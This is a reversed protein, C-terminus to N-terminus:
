ISIKRCRTFKNESSLMKKKALMFTRCRLVYCYTSFETDLGVLPTDQPPRTPGHREM